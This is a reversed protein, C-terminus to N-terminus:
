NFEKFIWSFIKKLKFIHDKDNRQQHYANRKVNMYGKKISCGLSEPFPQLSLMGRVEVLLRLM